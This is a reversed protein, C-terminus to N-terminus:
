TAAFLWQERNFYVAGEFWGPSVERCRFVTCNACVKAGTPAVLEIVGGHGLPVRKASVFGIGRANVDRTYLMWPQAGPEDSFLELKALVRYSFRALQRRDLAKLSAAELSSIIMEVQPPWDSNATRLAAM